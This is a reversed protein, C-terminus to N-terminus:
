KIDVAPILVVTGTGGKLIFYRADPEVKEYYIFNPAFVSFSCYRM